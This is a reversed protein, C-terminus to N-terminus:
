KLLVLSSHKCYSISIVSVRFSCQMSSQGHFGRSIVIHVSNNSKFFFLVLELSYILRNLSCKVIWLWSKMREVSPELASCPTPKETIVSCCVMARRICFIAETKVASSCAM